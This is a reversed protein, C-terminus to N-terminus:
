RMSFFAVWIWFGQLIIDAILSGVVHHMTRLNWRWYWVSNVYDKIMSYNARSHQDPTSAMLLKCSVYNVILEGTQGRSYVQDSKGCMFCAKDGRSINANNVFM